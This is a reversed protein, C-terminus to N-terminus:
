EKAECKKGVYYTLLFAGIACLISFFTVLDLSPKGIIVAPITAICFGSVTYYTYGYHNKLLYNIIFIFILAGIGLGIMVPFLSIIDLTSVAKLYYQYFGLLNLLVTSSIGPIITSGALVLGLICGQIFTLDTAQINSYGKLSLLGLGIIFTISLSILYKKDFGEKNAEKFLMPITGIIFGTFSYSTQMPYEKLLYMLINGFVVTGIVVGLGIPLLFIINKKINKFKALESIANIIKQYVGLIVLLAAGSLGPIINGIGGLIGKFFNAM